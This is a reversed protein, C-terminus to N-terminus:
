CRHFNLRQSVPSTPWGSSMSTSSVKLKKHVSPEADVECSLNAMGIVFGYCQGGVGGYTYGYGEVGEGSCSHLNLRQRAPSTPWEPQMALSSGELGVMLTVM